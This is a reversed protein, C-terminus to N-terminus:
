VKAILFLFWELILIFWLISFHEQLHLIVHFKISLVSKPHEIYHLRKERHQLNPIVISYKM